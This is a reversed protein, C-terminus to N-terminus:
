APRRGRNRHHNAKHPAGAPQQKVNGKQAPKDRGAASNKQGLMGLVDKAWELDGHCCEVAFFSVDAANAGKAIIESLRNVLEKSWYYEKIEVKGEVEVYSYDSCPIRSKLLQKSMNLQQAAEDINFMNLLNIESKRRVVNKADPEVSPAPQSGDHNALQAQLDDLEAGTLQSLRFEHSREGLDSYMQFRILGEEICSGSFGVLIDSSSESFQDAFDESEDAILLEALRARFVGYDPRFRFDSDASHLIEDLTM